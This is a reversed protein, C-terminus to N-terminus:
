MIDLGNIYKQKKNMIKIIFKLKVILSMSVMVNLSHYQKRNVYGAEEDGSPKKIPVQTGDICGITCPRGTKEYFGLAKEKLQDRNYPWVIHEM